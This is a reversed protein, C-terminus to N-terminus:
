EVYPQAFREEYVGNEKLQSDWYFSAMKTKTFLKFLPVSWRPYQEPKALKRLRGPDFPEGTAGFDRGIEQLGEFLKRNMKEPMMRVGECGGKVITGLYRCGLRRALKELYKEVHRSHTSEPFGSQVMFGIAPNGERGCYPELAEIFAMVLGPMADTYLPFALLVVEAEGFAQAFSDVQKVRNLYFVEHNNGPISEYGKIFQELLIKTNSGKGRPSGNFITLRM